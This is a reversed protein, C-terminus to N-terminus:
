RTRSTTPRLAPPISGRPVAGSGTGASAPAARVVGVGVRDHLEERLITVSEPAEIGLRVHNGRIAVVKIRIDSNIIITENVKRTLVLM